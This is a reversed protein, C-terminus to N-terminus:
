GSSRASHADQLTNPHDDKSIPPSIMEKRGKQPSQIKGFHRTEATKELGACVSVDGIGPNQLSEVLTKGSFEKPKGHRGQASKAL